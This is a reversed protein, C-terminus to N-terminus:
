TLNEAGVRHSVVMDLELELSGVDRESSWLYMACVSTCFVWVMGYFYLFRKFYVLVIQGFYSLSSFTQKM